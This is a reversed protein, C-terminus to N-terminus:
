EESEGDCSIQLTIQAPRQPNRTNNNVAVLQYLGPPRNQAQITANSASLSTTSNNGAVAVQPANASPRYFLRLGIPFNSSAAASITNQAFCEDLAFRPQGNSNKDLVGTVTQDDALASGGLAIGLLLATLAGATRGKWRTTWASTRM